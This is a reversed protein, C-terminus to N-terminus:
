PLSNCKSQKAISLWSNKNKVTNMQAETSCNNVSEQNHAANNRSTALQSGTDPGDALRAKLNNMWLDVESFEPL